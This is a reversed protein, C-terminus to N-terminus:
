IFNGGFIKPKSNPSRKAPALYQAVPKLNRSLAIFKHKV